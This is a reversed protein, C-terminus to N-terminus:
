AFDPDINTIDYLDSLQIVHPAGENKRLESTMHILALINNQFMSRRKSAVIKPIETNCKRQFWIPLNSESYRGARDTKNTYSIHLEFEKASVEFRFRREFFAEFENAFNNHELDEGSEKNVTTNLKRPFKSSRVPKKPQPLKHWKAGM